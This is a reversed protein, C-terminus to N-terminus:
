IDQMIERICEAAAESVLRLDYIWYGDSEIIFLDLAEGAARYEDCLWDLAEGDATDDEASEDPTPIDIEPRIAQIDSIMLQLLEEVTYAGSGDRQIVLSQEAATEGSHMSILYADM